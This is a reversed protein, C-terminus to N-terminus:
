QGTVPYKCDAENLVAADATQELWMKLYGGKNDLLERHSGMEAIRGDEIFIIKDAYTVTSFRHAIVFTTRDRILNRYAGEIISRETHSDVNSTAEDLILIAPDRLIARAISIRQRQGYSLKVGREGICTDYGKPLEMIFSEANALRSAEVVQKYSAHPKSYLINEMVTAGFLYDDQLVMAIKSRYSALDIEKLNYGDIFVVGSVPDYFRLLLNILTTKGSGSKGVLAVTQREEATFNIGSLVENRGNYSFCVDSFKINGKIKDLSVPNISEKIKPKNALLAKIREMSVSAEQYYNNIVVMKIVPYFLMGLYAYFAMLTGTSIRGSFVARCGFWILTVLGLSSIFESGMWLLIALRHSAMSADFIQRQQSDFKRSEYREKAFGAVVRIGNFVEALRSTLEAYKERIIRHKDQLRASYKIFTLGFLPLFVLSILTLRTDLFFLVVLVFFVNLFSYLFDIAGGFLFDRISEVDSIIGSIITGKPTDDIFPVSLRQLHWYLKNRIDCIVSEGVLSALYERLFGFYFKLGMALILCIGLVNLLFIDKNVLVKDVILKIAWPLALTLLNAIVISLLALLVKSKYPKLLTLFSDINKMKLM